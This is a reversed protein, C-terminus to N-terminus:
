YLRQLGQAVKDEIPMDENKKNHKIGGMHDHIKKYDGYFSGWKAKYTVKNYSHEFHYFQDNIHAEM